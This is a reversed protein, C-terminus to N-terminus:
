IGHQETSRIRLVNAAPVSMSCRVQSADSAAQLIALHAALAEGAKSGPPAYESVCRGRRDRAAVQPVLCRRIDADVAHGLHM